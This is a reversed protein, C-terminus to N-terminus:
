SHTNLHLVHAQGVPPRGRAALLLTLHQLDHESHRELTGSRSQPSAVGGAVLRRQKPGGGPPPPTVYAASHGAVGAATPPLPAGEGAGATSAHFGCFVAPPGSGGGPSTPDASLYPPPGPTPPDSPLPAALASILEEGLQLSVAAAGPDALYGQLHLLTM